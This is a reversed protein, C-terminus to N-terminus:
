KEGKCQYLFTDRSIQFGAEGYRENIYAEFDGAEEAISVGLREAFPEIYDILELATDFTLTLPYVFLKVEKFVEQLQEKRMKLKNKKRSLEKRVAKEYGPNYTLLIAAVQELLASGGWTAILKGSESLCDRLKRYTRIPEKMYFIVHNFFICDYKDEFEMSNFDGWRFEFQPKEAVYGALEDAHSNHYDVLTVQMGEPYRDANYRWINGWGCGADLIKGNDPLDALEFVWRSWGEPENSHGMMRYLREDAMRSTIITHLSDFLNNMQFHESKSERVARSMCDIMRDLEAAKKQLLRKQAMFSESLNMEAYHALIEKITDLRFGLYRLLQIRQLDVVAKEDFRRYNNSKDRESMLLGKEEYLRIAKPSVKTIGSLEGVTYKQQPKNKEM